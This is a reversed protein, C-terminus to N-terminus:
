GRTLVIPSVNWSSCLVRYADSSKVCRWSSICARLDSEVKAGHEGNTLSLGRFIRRNRECWLGYIIAALSLKFVIYQFSSSGRHLKAWNLEGQLNLLPTSVDKKCLFHSWVCTSFTCAFFLYGHSEQGTGCLACLDNTTIGWSLLRHKTSLRGLTAMWEILAWRPVHKHFWIVRSWPAPSAKTRLAQWASSTSYVSSPHLTWIVSDLCTPNPLFDMFTPAVIGQTVLSRPSPQAM